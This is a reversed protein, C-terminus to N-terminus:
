VLNKKIEKLVMDRFKTEHFIGYLNKLNKEKRYMKLKVCSMSYKYLTETLYFKKLEIPSKTKFKVYLLPDDQRVSFRNTGKHLQFAYELPRFWSSIDYSGPVYYGQQSLKTNHLYPPLSELELEEEAFFIWGVSFKVTFSDKVSPMKLQLMNKNFPITDPLHNVVHTNTFEVDCNSPSKITFINRLTNVYAPCMFFNDTKNENNVDPRLDENLLVPDAYSLYQEPYVEPFAWPAWYVIKTMKTVKKSLIDEL